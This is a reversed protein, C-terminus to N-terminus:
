KPAKISVPKNINSLTSTYTMKTVDKASVSLKRLVDDKDVWLDYTLTTSKVRSATSSMLAALSASEAVVKYHTVATGGVKAPGADTLSKAYPKAKTAWDAFSAVLATMGQDSPQAKWGGQKVWAKGAIVVVPATTGNDLVSLSLKPKAPDTIDVDGKVKMPRMRGWRLENYATDTHYSKVSAMGAAVRDLFAGPDPM